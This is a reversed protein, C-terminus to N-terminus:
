LRAHETSHANNVVPMLVNQLNWTAGHHFLQSDFAHENNLIALSDPADYLRAVALVAHDFDDLTEFLGVIDDRNALHAQFGVRSHGDDIRWGAESATASSAFRIRRRISIAVSRRTVITMNMTAITSNPM